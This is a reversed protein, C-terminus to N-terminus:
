DTNPTARWYCCGVKEDAACTVPHGPRVCIEHLPRAHEANNGLDCNPGWEEDCRSAPRDKCACLPEPPPALWVDRLVFREKLMAPDPETGPGYFMVPELGDDDQRFLVKAQPKTMGELEKLAARVIDRNAGGAVSDLALELAEKITTTM